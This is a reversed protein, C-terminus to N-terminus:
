SPFEWRTPSTTFDKERLAFVTEPRVRVSASVAPDLFEIGASTEYKANMADLFGQIVGLDTVLEAPGRLVVPELPDETAVSVASGAAVNRAKASRLSSSFWLVEGTWVAWVPMLHPQGAPTVTAVWYDHSTRLREEAWEWPLLGAAAPAIGYGPMHPRAAIPGDM